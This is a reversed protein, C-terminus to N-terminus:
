QELRHVRDPRTAPERWEAEVDAKEPGRAAMRRVHHVTLVEGVPCDGGSREGLPGAAGDVALVERPARADGGLRDHVVPECAWPVSGDQETGAKAPDSDADGEPCEDPMTACRDHRGVEGAALSFGFSL